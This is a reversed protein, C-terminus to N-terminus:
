QLGASGRKLATPGPLKGRRCFEAEALGEVWAEAEPDGYWAEHELWAQLREELKDESLGICLGICLHESDYYNGDLEVYAHILVGEEDGRRNRRLGQLM